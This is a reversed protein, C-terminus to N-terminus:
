PPPLTRLKLDVADLVARRANEYFRREAEPERHDSVALRSGIFAAVDPLPVQTRGTMQETWIARGGRRLSLVAKILGAM